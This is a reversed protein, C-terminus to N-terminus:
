KFGLNKEVSFSVFEFFHNNPHSYYGFKSSRSICYLDCACKIAYTYMWVIISGLKSFYGNVLM